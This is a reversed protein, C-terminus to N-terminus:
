TGVVGTFLFGTLWCNWEGPGIKRRPFKVLMWHVGTGAGAMQFTFGSTSSVGGPPFSRYFMIGAACLEIFGGMDVRLPLEVFEPRGERTTM